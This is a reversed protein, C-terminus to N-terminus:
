TVYVTSKILKVTDELEPFRSGLESGCANLGPFWSLLPLELGSVCGSWYSKLGSLLNLLELKLLDRKKAASSGLM